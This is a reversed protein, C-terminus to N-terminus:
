LLSTYSYENLICIPKDSATIPRFSGAKHPVEQIFLMLTKRREKRARGEKMIEKM